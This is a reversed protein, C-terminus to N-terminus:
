FQLGLAQKLETETEEQKSLDDPIDVIIPWARKQEFQVLEDKLSLALSESLLIIDALHNKKIEEIKELALSPETIVFGQIGLLSFLDVTNENGLLIINM